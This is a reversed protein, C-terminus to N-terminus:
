QLNEIIKPYRRSLLIFASKVGGSSELARFDPIFHPTKLFGKNSSLSSLDVHHEGAM